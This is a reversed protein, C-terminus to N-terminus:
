AGTVRDLALANYATGADDDLFVLTHEGEFETTLAYNGTGADSTASAALVGTARRYARVARAANAGANNKVNGSIAFARQGFGSFYGGPAANAFASAGCNITCKGTNGFVAFFREGALTIEPGVIVGNRRLQLKRADVDLLLGITTGGSAIADVGAGEAYIDGTARRLAWSHEALGPVNSLNFQESCIGVFQNTGSPFTYELYWRGWTAGFISRVSDGGSEATKNANSLTIYSGVHAPDWTTPTFTAM